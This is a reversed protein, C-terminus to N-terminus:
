KYEFNQRFFDQNTINKFVEKFCPFKGVMLDNALAFESIRDGEYNCKSYGYGGHVGEYSCFSSCVHDNWDGLLFLKDSTPVNM